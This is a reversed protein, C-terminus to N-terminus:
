RGGIWSGLDEKEAWGDGCHTRFMREMKMRREKASVGFLGQERAWQRVVWGVVAREVGNGDVM